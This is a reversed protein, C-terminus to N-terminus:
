TWTWERAELLRETKVWKNVFVLVSTSVEPSGPEMCVRMKAGNSVTEWGPIAARSGM